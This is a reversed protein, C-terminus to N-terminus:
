EHSPRVRRCWRRLAVWQPEGPMLQELRCALQRVLKSQVTSTEEDELRALLIVRNLESWLRRLPYRLRASKRM